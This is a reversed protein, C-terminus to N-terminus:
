GVTLEYLFIVSHNKMITCIFVNRKFNASSQTACVLVKLCHSSLLDRFVNSPDCSSSPSLFSVHRCCFVIVDISARLPLHSFIHGDM